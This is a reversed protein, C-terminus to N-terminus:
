DELPFGYRGPMSIARCRARRTDIEMVLFLTNDIFVNAQQDTWEVSIQEERLDPIVSQTSAFRKILPPPKRKDVPEPLEDIPQVLSCVFGHTLITQGDGSVLYAWVSEADGEIILHHDSSSDYSSIFIDEAM